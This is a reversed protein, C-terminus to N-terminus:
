RIPVREVLDLHAAKRVGGVLVVHGFSLGALSMGVIM